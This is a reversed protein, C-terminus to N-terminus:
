RPKETGSGAGVGKEDGELQRVDEAAQKRLAGEARGVHRHERLFQVAGAALGSGRAKGGVHQRDEHRGQQQEGREEFDEHRGADPRHRAGILLHRALELQRDLQRPDGKGIQEEDAENRQERAHQLRHRAESGGGRRRDQEIEGHHERQQERREERGRTM